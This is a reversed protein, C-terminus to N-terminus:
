KTSAPPSRKLGAHFGTRRLRWSVSSRCPMSLLKALYGKRDCGQDEAHGVADSLVAELHYGLLPHIGELYGCVRQPHRAETAKAAPQEVRRGGCPDLIGPHDGVEVGDQPEGGSVVAPEGAQPTVPACGAAVRGGLGM